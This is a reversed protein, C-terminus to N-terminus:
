KHAFTHLLKKVVERGFLHESEDLLEPPAKRGTYQTAEQADRQKRLHEIVQKLLTLDTGIKHRLSEQLLRPMLAGITDGCLHKQVRGLVSELRIQM